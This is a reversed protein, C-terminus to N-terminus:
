GLVIQLLGFAKLVQAVLSGVLAGFREELDLDPSVWFWIDLPSYRYRINFYEDKGYHQLVRELFIDSKM